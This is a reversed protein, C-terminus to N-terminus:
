QRSAPLFIKVSLDNTQPDNWRACLEPLGKPLLVISQPVLEFLERVHRAYEKIYPVAVDRSAWANGEGKGVGWEDLYLCWFFYRKAGYVKTFEPSGAVPFRGVAWPAQPDMVRLCDNRYVSVIPWPKDLWARAQPSDLSPMGEFLCGQGRAWYEDGTKEDIGHRKAMVLADLGIAANSFKNLEHQTRYAADGMRAYRNDLGPSGDHKIVKVGMADLRKCGEYFGDVLYDLGDARATVASYFDLNHARSEDRKGHPCWFFVVPRRPDDTPPADGLWGPRLWEIAPAVDGNEGDFKARWSPWIRRWREYPDVWHPHMPTPNDGNITRVRRNLPSIDMHGGVLEWWGIPYLKAPDFRESQWGGIRTLAPDFQVQAAAPDAGPKPLGGPRIEQGLAAECVCVSLVAVFTSKM